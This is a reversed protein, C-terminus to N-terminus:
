KAWVDAEIDVDLIDSRKEDELVQTIRDQNTVTIASHDDGPRSPPLERAHAVEHIEVASNRHM